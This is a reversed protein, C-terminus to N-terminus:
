LLSIYFSLTSLLEYICIHRGIAVGSSCRVILEGSTQTQAGETDQGKPFSSNNLENM